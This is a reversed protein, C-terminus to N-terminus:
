RVLLDYLADSRAEHGDGHIQVLHTLCFIRATFQEARDLALFVLILADPDDRGRAFDECAM